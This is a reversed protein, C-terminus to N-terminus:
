SARIRWYIGSTGGLLTAEQIFWKVMEWYINQGVPTCSNRIYLYIDSILHFGEKM